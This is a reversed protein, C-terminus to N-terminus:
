IFVWAALCVGIGSLVMFLSTRVNLGTSAKRKSDFLNVMLIEFLFRLGLLCIFGAGILVVFAIENFNM